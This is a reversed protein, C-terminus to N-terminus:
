KSNLQPVFRKIIQVSMTAQQDVNKIVDIAANLGSSESCVFIDIAAYNDREPWTHISIHSEALMLVGTVGMGEGFAHFEKNLIKANAANAATSLLSDLQDISFTSIVGRHEIIAHLGMVNQTDMRMFLIM